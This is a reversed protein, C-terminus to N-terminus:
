HTTLTSQNRMTLSTMRLTTNLRIATSVAPLTSKKLQLTQVTRLRLVTFPLTAPSLDSPVSRLPRPTEPLASTSATDGRGALMSVALMASLVVSTLKTFKKM